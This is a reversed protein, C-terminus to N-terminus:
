ARPTREPCGISFKQSSRWRPKKTRPFSLWARRNWWSVKVCSLSLVVSLKTTAGLEPEQSPQRGPSTTLRTTLNRRLPQFTPFNPSLFAQEGLDGEYDELGAQRENLLFRSPDFSNKIFEAYRRRCDPSHYAKSVDIGRARCVRCRPTRGHEEIWERPPGRTATDPLPLDRANEGEIRPFERAAEASRGPLLRRLGRLCSLEFTVPAVM